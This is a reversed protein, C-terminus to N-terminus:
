KITKFMRNFRLGKFISKGPDKSFWILIAKGVLHDEPVFGWFRSDLSNHRNDGLVFYYNMKFTYSRSIKGNIYISKGEVHLDNNEYIDIIRSYLPLNEENIDITIGRAPVLLPGFKDATWQSKQTHPFVETNRFSVLPEVYRQLSKVENLEKFYNAYENTLLM